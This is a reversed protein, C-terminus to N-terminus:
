FFDYRFHITHYFADRDDDDGETVNPPILMYLQTCFGNKKTFKNHKKKIVARAVM